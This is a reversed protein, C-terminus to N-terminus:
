DVDEYVELQQRSQGVTDQVELWKALHYVVLLTRFMVLSTPLKRGSKDKNERSPNEGNGSPSNCSTVSLLSALKALDNAANYDDVADEMVRSM